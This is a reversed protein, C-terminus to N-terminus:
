AAARRARRREELETQMEETTYVRGAAVDALARRLGRLYDEAAADTTLFPLRARLEHLPAEGDLWSRLEAVDVTAIGPEDDMGNLRDGEFM